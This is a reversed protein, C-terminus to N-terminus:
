GNAKLGKLYQEASEKAKDTVMDKFKVADVYKVSEVSEAIDKGAGTSGASTGIMADYQQTQEAMEAM